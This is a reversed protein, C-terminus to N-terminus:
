TGNKMIEQYNLESASVLHSVNQIRIFAKPCYVEQGALRKDVCRICAHVYDSNTTKDDWECRNKLDYRDKQYPVEFAEIYDWVDDHTWDKLPYLFDPGIDRYLIKTELPLPGVIPDTDITKHGILVADWPFVFGAKPQTFHKVGCLYLDPDQGDQYEVINKPVITTTLSSIQYESVFAPLGKGYMMSSKVPPYSYVELNWERILSQAFEYKRPFWPDQYFVIPPQRGATCMLHLLVSSDKGFSCYFVPERYRSLEECIFESAEAIKEELSM